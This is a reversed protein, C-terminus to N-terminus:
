SRQEKMFKSRGTDLRISDANITGHSRHNEVIKKELSANQAKLDAFSESKPDLTKLARQNFDIERAMRANELRKLAQMINGMQNNQNM